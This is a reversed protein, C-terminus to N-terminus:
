EIEYDFYGGMGDSIVRGNDIAIVRKAFANVLEKEHTVVLITTGMDNIKEFLLMLELSRVPDLNGTPEDAVIMRPNNVLARAIAVRQQEGGSLENPMRKERGELGVLDLVYPVRQKIEKRRAGVVRMAFAVNDYVNMNEILRFDQFIVGLTRRMKPLKRRKIHRMDFDNVVIKGSKARIEGTILKMLTTKGSGSPGVLFVFEGEKISLSVNDLAETGSSEYVVSVNNMEVM